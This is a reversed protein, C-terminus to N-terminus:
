FEEKIVVPKPYPVFTIFDLPFDLSYRCSYMKLRNEPQTKCPFRAYIFGDDTKVALASNVTNGYKDTKFAVGAKDMNSVYIRSFKNDSIQRKVTKVNNM